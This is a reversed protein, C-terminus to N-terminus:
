RRGAKPSEGDARDGFLMTVNLRRDEYRDRFTFRDTAHFLDSHFIIARNCRYPVTMSGASHRALYADIAGEDENFRQFSWDLPAECRHIVLGGTAPDLNAEDPTLWFNVNVAAADAHVGIGEMRSDYKYVWMQRLRHQRFVTPMRQPLEQAIQLLLGCAVEPLYAGVYGGHKVHHFITSGLCFRRLASLATPELFGDITAIGPADAAYAGEVSRWDRPALPSEPSAPADLLHIARNYTGGLAALMADTLGVPRRADSGDPMQRLLAEYASATRDLGARDFVLDGQAALWRFQEVDHRIRSRNALRDGDQYPREEHPGEEYLHPTTLGRTRMAQERLVALAGAADGKAQLSLALAARASPHGPDIAIAARFRAAAADLRGARDLAMGWAYQFRADAPALTAARAQAAAADAARGAALLANGRNHHIAPHGPALAAARDFAAVAEGLRGAAQLASGLNAVCAVHGPALRLADAFLAIAATARGARMEGIGAAHLREAERAPAASPPPRSPADPASQVM